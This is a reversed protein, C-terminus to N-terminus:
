GIRRSKCLRVAIKTGYNIILIHYYVTHNNARIVVLGIDQVWYRYGIDVCGFLVISGTVATSTRPIISCEVRVAERQVM